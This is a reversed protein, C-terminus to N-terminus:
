AAPRVLSRMQKAQDARIRGVAMALMVVLALGMRLRMKNMGRIFHHGFGFNLAIRSNVREVSTRQKYQRTWTKSDRAQPTFVRRDTELPIRVIRGHASQCGGNCLDRQTCEIGKAAAPCRYKLCEREAEFGEFVMPTYNDIESQGTDRCRCLIQGCHTHFITDVREAYVQRPLHPNEQWTNRIDIIPKINYTDWLDRNNAKSDYGKDASLFETADLMGHHDQDLQDIMPLLQPCDSTSAKTLEYALPLEYDADVILHLKYGFWRKVKEWPTGDKHVGRYSKTGWNADTDRRGDPNENKTPRGHSDIAKSDIALRKGLDPLLTRLTEVLEDFMADVYEQHEFLSTLFRSYVSSTPVAREARDAYFGCLMRLEGNRALERRLTEVGPHEFVIGAIVSNWVARIPYDNRRKRRKQELALMLQEDPLAELTMRLRNLDSSADVHEWSFLQPQAIIAM